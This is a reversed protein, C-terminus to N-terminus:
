DCGAYAVVKATQADMAWVMIHGLQSTEANRTMYEWKCVIIWCEGKSHRALYAGVPLIGLNENYYREPNKEREKMALEFAAMEAKHKERGAKIEAETANELFDHIPDSPLMPVNATQLNRGYNLAKICADLSKFDLGASKAKALLADSFVRWKERWNEKTVEVEDFIRGEPKNFFRESLANEGADEGAPVDFDIKAVTVNEPLPPLTPKETLVINITTPLGSERSRKSYVGDPMRFGGTRYRPHEVLFLGNPTISGESSGDAYQTKSWDVLCKVTVNGNTGTTTTVGAPPTRSDQIGRRKQSEMEMRLIMQEKDFFTVKANAIPANTDRDSVLVEVDM